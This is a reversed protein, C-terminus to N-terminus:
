NQYDKDRKNELSSQSSESKMKGELLWNQHVNIKRKKEQKHSSQDSISGKM